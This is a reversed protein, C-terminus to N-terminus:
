LYAWNQKGPKIDYIKFYIKVKQDLRKEVHGFFDSFIKLYRGFLFLKKLQLLFM